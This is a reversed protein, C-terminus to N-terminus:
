MIVDDCKKGRGVEHKQRGVKERELEIKM